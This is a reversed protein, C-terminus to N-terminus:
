PLLHGIASDARRDVKAANGAVARLGNLHPPQNRSGLEDGLGLRGQKRGAEPGMEAVIDTSIRMESTIAAPLHPLHEPATARVNDRWDDVTQEATDKFVDFLASAVKAPAAGFERALEDPTM